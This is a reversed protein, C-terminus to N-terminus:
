RSASLPHGADAQSQLNQVFTACSAERGRAPRTVRYRNAGSSNHRRGSTTRNNDSQVRGVNWVATLGLMRSASMRPARKVSSLASWAVSGSFVRSSLSSPTHWPTTRMSTATMLPLRFPNSILLSWSVRSRSGSCARSYERTNLSTVITVCPACRLLTRSRIGAQHPMVSPPRDSRV